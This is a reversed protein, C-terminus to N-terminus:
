KVSKLPSTKQAVATKVKADIIAMQKLFEAAPQYGSILEIVQGNPSIAATTPYVRVKLRKALAAEKRGDVEVPIFRKEIQEAIWKQSFTTEKMRDCYVCGPVTLYLLMPRQAAKMKKRGKALDKEWRVSPEASLAVEAQPRVETGSSSPQEQAISILPFLLGAILLCVTQRLM